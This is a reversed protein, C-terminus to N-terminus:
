NATFTNIAQPAVATIITQVTAVFSIHDVTTVAIVNNGVGPCRNAISIEQVAIGPMIDDEGTVTVVQDKAAATAVEHHNAFICLLDEAPLIVVKCQASRTSIGQHTVFTVVPQFAAVAEVRKGTIVRLQEEVTGNNTMIHQVTLAVIGVVITFSAVINHNLARTNLAVITHGTEVPCDM